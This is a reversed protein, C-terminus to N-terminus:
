ERLRISLFNGNHPSLSGGAVPWQEAIRRIGQPVLGPHAGAMDVVDSVILLEASKASNETWNVNELRLIFDVPGAERKKLLLFTVIVKCTLSNYPISNVNSM